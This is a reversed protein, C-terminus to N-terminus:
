SCVLPQYLFWTSAYVYIHVYVQIYTSIRCVTYVWIRSKHYNTSIEHTGACMFVRVHLTLVVSKPDLELISTPSSISAATMPWNRIRTKLMNGGTVVQNYARRTRMLLGCKVFMEAIWTSRCWQCCSCTIGIYDRVLSQNTGLLWPVMVVTGGASTPLCSRCFTSPNRPNARRLLNRARKAM